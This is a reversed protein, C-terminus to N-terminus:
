QRWLTIDYVENQKQREAQNQMFVVEVSGDAAVTTSDPNVTFYYYGGNAVNYDLGYAQLLIGEAAVSVGSKNDGGVCMNITYNSTSAIQGLKVTGGVTVASVTAKADIEGSFLGFACEQRNSTSSIDFTANVFNIGKIVAGEGVKGFLGGYHASSSAFRSVADTIKVTAGEQATFAGTFTGITFATPWKVENTFTLDNLITYQGQPNANDALQKATEIRYKIGQEVVVYVNQVRNIAKAHELDLSGNHTWTDDIKETKAADKYAAVFTCNEVQPFTFKNNNSYQHSHEMVGNEWRPIWITNYDAYATGEKAVDYNFYTEGYKVWEGNEEIYYDFFYYSVWGAYLRMEKVEDDPSCVFPKDFDWRDSYEYLPESQVPAEDNETGAVYYIGDNEVLARNQEDLLEGKANVVPTRTKYWGAFFSQPKTLTITAPRSPSTPEILKFSYTGDANQEYDSFNFGDAVTIGTRDYYSGGNSDYYVIVDYKDLEDKTKCAALGACLAVLFLLGFVIKLKKIM